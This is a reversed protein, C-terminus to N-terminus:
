RFYVTRSEVVGILAGNNKWSFFCYNHLNVPIKNELNSEKLEHVRLSIMKLIMNDDFRLM